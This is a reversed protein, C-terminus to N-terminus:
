PKLGNSWGVREAPTPAFVHLEREFPELVEEVGISRHRFDCGREVPDAVLDFADLVRRFPECPEADGLHQGGGLMGIGVFQLHQADVRALAIRQLDDAARGIRTRAHLPHQAQGARHNRGIAHFQALARDAPDFRVAHHTRHALKFQAIFVVANDFQGLICCDAGAKGFIAISRRHEVDRDRGVPGIAHAHQANRAIQSGRPQPREFRDVHRGDRTVAGARNFHLDLVRFADRGIEGPHDAADAVARRGVPHLAPELRGALPRDARQDIAGVVQHERGPARRM